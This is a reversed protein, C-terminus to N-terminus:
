HDHREPQIGHVKRRLYLSKKNTGSFCCAADGAPRSKRAYILERARAHNIYVATLNQYAKDRARKREKKAQARDLEMQREQVVAARDAPKDTESAYTELLMELAPTDVREIDATTHDELDM